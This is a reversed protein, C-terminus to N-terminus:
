LPRRIRRRTIEVLGLSTIDVVQTFVPDQRVLSRLYELLKKESETEKMNIFDVLIMGSMNRLILQRAVERAAEQNIRQIVEKGQNENIGSNVDIVTM